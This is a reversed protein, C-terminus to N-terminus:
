ELLAVSPPVGARGPRWGQLDGPLAPGREQRGRRDSVGALRLAEKVNGEAALANYFRTANARREPQGLLFARGRDAYRQLM